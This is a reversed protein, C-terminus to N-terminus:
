FSYDPQASIDGHWFPDRGYEMVSTMGQPVYQHSSSYDLSDMQPSLSSSSGTMPHGYLGPSSSSCSAYYRLPPPMATVNYPPPDYNAYCAGQPVALTNALHRIYRIALRLTELKSPFRDRGSINDMKSPKKGPPRCVPLRDRLQDFAYNMDRMRTRERDCASKKYEDRSLKEQVKASKGKGGRSGLGGKPNTKKGWPSSLSLTSVSSTTAASSNSVGSPLSAQFAASARRTVVSSSSHKSVFASVAQHPDQSEGTAYAGALTFSSPSYNSCYNQSGLDMPFRPYYGDHTPYSPVQYALENENRVTLGGTINMDTGNFGYLLSNHSVGNSTDYSQLHPDTTSSLARMHAQCSEDRDRFEEEAYSVYHQPTGLALPKLTAYSPAPDKPYRFSDAVRSFASEISPLKASSGDVSTSMNSGGDALSGGDSHGNGISVNAEYDGIKIGLHSCTLTSSFSSSSSNMANELGSTESLRDEIAESRATLSSYDVPVIQPSEQAENRQIFSSVNSFTVSSASPAGMFVNCTKFGKFDAVPSKAGSDSNSPSSRLAYTQDSASNENQLATNHTIVSTSSTQPLLHSSISESPTPLETKVVPKKETETSNQSSSAQNDSLVTTYIKNERDIAPTKSSSIQFCTVNSATADKSVNGPARIVKIPNSTASIDPESSITRKAFVELHKSVGVPRKIVSATKDEILLKSQTIKVVKEYDTRHSEEKNYPIVKTKALDYRDLDSKVQVKYENEISLPASDTSTKALKNPISARPGTLIRKPNIQLVKITNTQKLTGTQKSEPTQAKSTTCDLVAETMERINAQDKRQIPASYTSKAVKGPRPM